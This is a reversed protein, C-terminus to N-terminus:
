LRNWNEDTEFAFLPSDEEIEAGFGDLNLTDPTGGVEDPLYTDWVGSEPHSTYHMTQTEEDFKWYLYGQSNTTFYRM